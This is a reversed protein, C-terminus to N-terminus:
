KLVEQIKGDLDYDSTEIHVLWVIEGILSNLRNIEEKAADLHLESDFNILSMKVLEKQQEQFAWWAGNIFNRDAEVHDRYSDYKNVQSDFWIHWCLKSKIEPLAEFKERLVEVDDSM